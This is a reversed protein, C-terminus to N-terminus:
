FKPKTIHRLALNFFEESKEKDGHLYDLRISLGVLFTNKMITSDESAMNGTVFIEVYDGVIFEERWDITCLGEVEDFIIIDYKDFSSQFYGHEDFIPVRITVRQYYNKRIGSCKIPSIDCLYGKLIYPPLEERMAKLIKDM